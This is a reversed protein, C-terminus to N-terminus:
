QAKRYQRQKKITNRGAQINERHRITGEVYYGLTRLQKAKLPLKNNYVWAWTNDFFRKHKAKLQTYLEARYKILLMLDDIQPHSDFDKKSIGYRKIWYGVLQEQELDKHSLRNAM